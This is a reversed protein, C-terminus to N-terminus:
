RLNDLSEPVEARALEENGLQSKRSHCYEREDQTNVRSTSSVWQPLVALARAILDIWGPKKDQAM